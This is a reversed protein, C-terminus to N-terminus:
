ESKDSQLLVYEFVKRVSFEPQAILQLKVKEIESEYYVQEKLVSAFHELMQMITEYNGTKSVQRENEMCAPKQYISYKYSQDTKVKQYFLYAPPFYTNM